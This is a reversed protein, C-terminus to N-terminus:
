TNPNYALLYDVNNFIEDVSLIRDYVLFDSVSKTFKVTESAQNRVAGFRLPANNYNFARTAGGFPGSSVKNVYLQWKGSDVGSPTTMFTLVQKGGSAIYEIRNNGSSDYIYFQNVRGYPPFVASPNYVEQSDSWGDGNFKTFLPLTFSSGSVPIQFNGSVVVTFAGTPENNLISPWEVVGGYGSGTPFQWANSITSSITLPGNLVSGSNGNGSADEWINTSSNYSGTGGQLWSVLGLTTISSIGGGGFFAFQHWM